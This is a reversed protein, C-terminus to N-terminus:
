HNFPKPKMQRNAKEVVKSTLHIMHLLDQRTTWSKHIFHYFAM